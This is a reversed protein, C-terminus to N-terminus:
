AQAPAAVMGLSEVQVERAIENYSLCAIGPQIGEVLRRVQARVQPGSLIVPAHGAGVLKELEKAVANMVANMAQPSLRLYAGGETREIAGAIFDELEPSLTIVYLRGDAERLQECITRSVANRVYETLVEPDKTRSGYDSLVELIRGLDRISVREALLNQLVKQIEGPKLHALSDEVVKPSIGKLNELLANTEERSLLEPAHRKVTETLHTAIVSTADVVTYGMAEARPKEAATVWAAPLGFAPETTKIGDLEGQAMGSDMALFSDAMAVGRAIESGRIRFVYENPELQMNDRIRIPPVVLGMDLAMQRRIMTVRELLDGGQGSDVLKILGYGVHMEMPDVHLLAEVKEPAKAAQKKDVEAKKVEAAVQKKDRRRMVAWAGVLTGSMVVLPFLPLSGGMGIGMVLLAGAAVLVTKPNLIFQGTLENGLDNRTSSRSVVLAAAISILFAPIQSVLGDGITLVTYMELADRFALPPTIITLGVILGGCINIITIVIAAIADGRVFKSAGDMAGYFDAEQGVEERRRRAEKDDIIGANLDADIALQKGPLSDLTFRAAVEAIRTAGKTVVLFQVLVLILFIVFGVVVGVLSSEGTGGGGTVVAGFTAVVGGAVDEINGSRSAGGNSLIARTTAINLALRFFTAVLLVTPFTNLSLPKDSFIAALLVLLSFTINAIMLFDLLFPALPVLIIAFVCFLAMAFVLTKNAALWRGAGQM